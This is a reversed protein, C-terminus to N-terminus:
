VNPNSEWYLYIVRQKMADLSTQTKVLRRSLVYGPEEKINFAAPFHLQASMEMQHRPHCHTYLKKKLPKGPCFGTAPKGIREFIDVFVSLEKVFRTM